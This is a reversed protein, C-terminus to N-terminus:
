GEMVKRFRQVIEIAKPEAVLGDDCAEMIGDCFGQRFKDREIRGKKIWGEVEAPSVVNRVALEIITAASIPRWETTHNVGMNHLAGGPQEGRRINSRDLPQGRRQRPKAHRVGDIWRDGDNWPRRPYKRQKSSM